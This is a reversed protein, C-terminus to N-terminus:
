LSSWYSKIVLLILFALASSWVHTHKKQKSDMRSGFVHGQTPDESRDSRAQVKIKKRPSTITALTSIAGLLFAATSVSEPHSIIIAHYKTCVNCRFVDGDEEKEEAARFKM